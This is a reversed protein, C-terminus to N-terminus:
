ELKFSKNHKTQKRMCVNKKGHMNRLLSTHVEDSGDYHTHKYDTTEPAVLWFVIKFVVKLLSLCTTYCKHLLVVVSIVNNWVTCLFLEFWITVVDLISIYDLKAFIM